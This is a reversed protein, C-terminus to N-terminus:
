WFDLIPTDTAGCFSSMDELFKYFFLKYLKCNLYVISIRCFDGHVTKAM